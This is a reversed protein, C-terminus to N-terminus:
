HHRLQRSMTGPRYIRYGLYDAAAVLAVVGKESMVKWNMHSM